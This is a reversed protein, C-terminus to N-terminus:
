DIQNLKDEANKQSASSSHNSPEKCIDIQMYKNKIINKEFM